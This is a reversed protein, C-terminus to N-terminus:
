KIDIDFKTGNSMGQGHVLKNFEYQDRLAQLHRRYADYPEGLKLSFKALLADVKAIKDDMHAVPDM